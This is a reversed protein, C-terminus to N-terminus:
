RVTERLCGKIIQTLQCLYLKKSLLVGRGALNNQTKCINVDILSGGM